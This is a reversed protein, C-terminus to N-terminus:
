QPPSLSLASRPRSFLDRLGNKRPLVVHLDRPGLLAPASEPHMTPLEQCRMTNVNLESMVAEDRCCRGNDRDMSVLIDEKVRKGVSCYLTLKNTEIVLDSIDCKQTRRLWGLM